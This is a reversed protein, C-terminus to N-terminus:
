NRGSTAIRGTRMNFNNEIKAKVCDNKLNCNACKNLNRYPEAGFCPRFIKNVTSQKMNVKFEIEYSKALSLGDFETDINPASVEELQKVSCLPIDDIYMTGMKIGYAM